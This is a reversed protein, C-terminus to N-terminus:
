PEIEVVKCWGLYLAETPDESTAIDTWGGDDNWRICVWVGANTGILGVGNAGMEAGVMLLRERILREADEKELLHVTYVNGPEEVVVGFRLPGAVCKILKGKYTPHTAPLRGWIREFKTLDMM